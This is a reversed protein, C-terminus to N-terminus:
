RSLEQLSQTAASAVSSREPTRKHALTLCFFVNLVDQKNIGPQGQPPFFCGSTLFEIKLCM